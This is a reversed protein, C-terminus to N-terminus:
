KKDSNHAFGKPIIHTRFGEKQLWRVDCDRVAICADLLWGMTYASPENAVNLDAHIYGLLACLVHTLEHAAVNVFSFAGDPSSRPHQIWVFLQGSNISLTWGGMDEEQTLPSWGDYHFVRRAYNFAAVRSGSVAITVLAGGFSPIHCMAIYEDAEKSKAKEAKATIAEKRKM